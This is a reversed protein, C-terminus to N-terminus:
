DRRQGPGAYRGPLGEFYLGIGAHETDGEAFRVTHGSIKCPGDILRVGSTPLARYRNQIGFRVPTSHSASASCKVEIRCGAPGYLRLLFAHGVEVQGVADGDDGAARIADTFPDGDTVRLRAGVEDDGGPALVADVGRDLLQARHSPAGDAHLGVHRVFHLHPRHRLGRHLFEAADVHEDVVGAGAPAAVKLRPVRNSSSPLSKSPM